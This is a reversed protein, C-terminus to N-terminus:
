GTFLSRFQVIPLCYLSPITCDTFLPAFFNMSLAYFTGLISNLSIHLVEM